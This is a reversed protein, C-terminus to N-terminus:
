WPPVKEKRLRCGGRYLSGGEEELIVMRSGGEGGAEGIWVMVM